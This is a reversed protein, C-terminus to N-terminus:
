EASRVGGQVMRRRILSLRKVPASLRRRREMGDSKSCERSGLGGSRDHLLPRANLALESMTTRVGLLDIKQVGTPINEPNDHLLARASCRSSRFPGLSIVVHHKTIEM